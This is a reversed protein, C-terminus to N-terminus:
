LSYDKIFIMKDDFVRMTRNVIELHFGELNVFTLRPKGYCLSFVFAKNGLKSNLMYSDISVYTGGYVSQAKDIEIEGDVVKITYYSYANDTRTVVVPDGYLVSFWVGIASSSNSLAEHTFQLNQYDATSKSLYNGISYIDM